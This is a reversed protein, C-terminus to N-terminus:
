ICRCCLRTAGQQSFLTAKISEVKGIIFFYSANDSRQKQNGRCPISPQHPALVLTHAQIFTINHKTSVTDTANGFHRSQLFINYYILTQFLEVWAHSLDVVVSYRDYGFNFLIFVDLVQTYFQVIYTSSNDRHYDVYFYQRM